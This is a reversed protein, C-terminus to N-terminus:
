EKKQNQLIEKVVEDNQLSDRITELIIQKLQEIEMCVSNSEEIDIVKVCARRIWEAATLGQADAHRCINDWLTQEMRVGASVAKNGKQTM